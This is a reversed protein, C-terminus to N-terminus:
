IKLKDGSAISCKGHTNPVNAVMQIQDSDWESISVTCPAGSLGAEWGQTVDRFGLYKSTGTFPAGNPFTGFGAGNITVPPNSQAVFQNCGPAACQTIVGSISIPASSLVGCAPRLGADGDPFDNCNGLGLLPIAKNPLSTALPYDVVPTYPGM